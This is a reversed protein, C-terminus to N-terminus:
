CTNPVYEKEIRVNLYSSLDPKVHVCFRPEFFSIKEDSIMVAWGPPVANPKQCHKKLDEFDYFAV